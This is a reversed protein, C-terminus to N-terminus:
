ISNSSFYVYQPKTTVIFTTKRIIALAVGIYIVTFGISPYDFDSGFGYLKTTFKETIILLFYISFIILQPEGFFKSLNERLLKALRFYLRIMLYYLPIMILAGALGYGFFLYYIPVEGAADAAVAYKEGRSSHARGDKWYLYTYGTGFFLNNNIYEKTLEYDNTGTVRQDIQGKSDMGTTMLLFTDVATESIYGVYKPFTISLVLIVVAAPAIIKLITSLKGTRFIYSIILSIIIITAIIDIQTRRTLTILMTILLVVGSYYLWKKYKIDLNIKRTLLYVTLSFPFLFYFLGYSQMWIRMMEDGPRRAMEGIPILQVGSFLTIAFLTLCITGIALTTTYFLELSRLSFFYVAVLIIFSYASVRNKRLFTAYDLDNNFFPVIGGYVVYFYLAFLTLYFIFKKLMQDQFIFAWNVKASILCIVIGAICVDTLHLPGLVTGGMFSYVYGGPDFFFNLFIWFWFDPHNYVIILISLLIILIVALTFLSQFM